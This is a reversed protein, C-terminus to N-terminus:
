VLPIFLNHLQSFEKIRNSTNDCFYSDMQIIISNISSSSSSSSTGGVDQPGGHDFHDFVGISLLVKLWLGCLYFSEVAYGMQTSFEIWLSWKQKWAWIPLFFVRAIVWYIGAYGALKPNVFIAYLWMILLFRSEQEMHNLFSRDVMEWLPYRKYDFRTFNVDSKYKMKVIIQATVLFKVFLPLHLDKYIEPHQSSQIMTSLLSSSM